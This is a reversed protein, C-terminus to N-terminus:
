IDIDFLLIIGVIILGVGLAISDAKNYWKDWLDTPKDSSTKLCYYGAYLSVLGLIKYIFIM